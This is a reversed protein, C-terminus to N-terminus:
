YNISSAKLILTKYFISSVWSSFCEKHTFNREWLKVQGYIVKTKWTAGTRRGTRCSIHASPHYPLFMKSSRVNQFELSSTSNTRRCEKANYLHLFERHSFFLTNLKHNIVNWILILNWGNTPLSHKFAWNLFCFKAMTVKKKNQGM